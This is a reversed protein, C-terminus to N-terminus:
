LLAQQLQRLVHAEGGLLLTVHPSLDVGGDCVAQGANDGGAAAGSGAVTAAAAAAAASAAAAAAAAPAAAFASGSPVPLGPLCSSAATQIFPKAAAM